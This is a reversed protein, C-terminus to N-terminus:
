RARRRAPRRRRSEETRAGGTKKAWVYTHGSSSGPIEEQWWDLAEAAAEVQEVPVKLKKAVARIVHEAYAYGETTPVRGGFQDLYEYGERELEAELGAVTKENDIDGNVATADGFEALVTISAPDYGEEAVDDALQDGPTSWATASSEDVMRQVEEELESQIAGYCDLQANYRENMEACTLQLPYQDFEHWGYHGAWSEYAWARTMPDTSAFAKRLEQPDQDASAAVAKLDGWSPVEPDLDVRYITWRAEPDSFEVDDTPPEVYELFCDGYIDEQRQPRRYVLGGGHEAFNKDGIQGIEEPPSDDGAAVRRERAVSPPFYAVRRSEGAERGGSSGFHEAEPEGNKMLTVDEGAARGDGAESKRVYTDFDNRARVPNSGSYVTGINGVIVKYTDERM